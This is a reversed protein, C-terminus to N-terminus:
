PRPALLSEITPPSAPWDGRELLWGREALLMHYFQPYLERRAAVRRCQDLLSHICAVYLELPETACLRCAFGWEDAGWRAQEHALMAEVEIALQDAVGQKLLRAALELVPAPSRLAYVTEGPVSVVEMDGGFIFFCAEKDFRDRLHIRGPGVRFSTERPARLGLVVESPCGARDCVTLRITEPDFHRVSPVARVAVLLGSYGPSYPHPQPM